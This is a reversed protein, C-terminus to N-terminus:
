VKIVCHHPLYYQVSPNHTLTASSQLERMHHLSLYEHIFETYERKLESDRNLKRELTVFRKLAIDKSDGLKQLLEPRTPMTVIFRGESNRRYTQAFHEECIREEPTRTNQREAREVQWFRALSSNLQENVSLNCITANRPQDHVMFNGSVVWGLLTKQWAPQCNSLKIKGICLLDLFIEAGLLIDVDAPRDFEPDALTIGDPIQLNRINLRNVPIDQTIKEIILCDLKAQFGNIRSQITVKALGRTQTALDGVGFIPINTVYQKVGLKKVCKSTIFCSQSGSDLLARCPQLAGRIDVVNIVATALIVQRDPGISAHNVTTSIVGEKDPPTSTKKSDSELQTTTQELHLLTNHRKHCKRCSGSTCQKAQHSAAKLCNLCLKRSKAEKIRQDVELDLYSACKFIPHDGKACYACMINTTAVHVTTGKNKDSKNVKQMNFATRQSRSSAELARCRQTLFETLQNFTPMEGRKITTEWEKNTIPDMRSTVLHILLDDWQHTPRKLAKLARIHKLMNDLLQRLEFYNEKTLMPQEFLAKVHKQIILSDDNYRDKLMKWAESYNADSAELSSIIDKAEHTLASLLYQMKQVNPLTTNEHIM